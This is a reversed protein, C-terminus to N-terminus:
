VGGVARRGLRCGALRFGVLRCTKSSLASPGQRGWLLSRAPPRSLGGVAALSLGGHRDWGGRCLHYGKLVQGGARPCSRVDDSVQLRSREVPYRCQGQDRVLVLVDVPVDDLRVDVAVLVALSRHMLGGGAFCRDCPGDEVVHPKLGTALPPDVGNDRCRGHLRCRSGRGLWPAGCAGSM